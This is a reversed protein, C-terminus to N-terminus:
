ACVAAGLAAGEADGACVCGEGAGAACGAAGASGATAEVVGCCAHGGFNTCTMTGNPAPEVGSMTARRIASPSPLFCASVVKMTSFLGPALPLIPVSATALACGSPEVM